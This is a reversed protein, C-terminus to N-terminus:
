SLVGVQLVRTKLAGITSEMEEREATWRAREKDMEAEWSARLDQGCCRKRGLGWGLGLLRLFSEGVPAEGQAGAGGEHPGARRVLVGPRLVRTELERPGCASDAVTPRPIQEGAGWMWQEINGGLLFYGFFAWTGDLAKEAAERAEALEEGLRQAADELGGVRKELVARSSESKALRELAQGGGVCFM